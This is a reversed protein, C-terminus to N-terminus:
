ISRRRFALEISEGFHNRVLAEELQDGIRNVVPWLARVQRLEEDARADRERAALAEASPPRDTKRRLWM